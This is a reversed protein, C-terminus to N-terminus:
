LIIMEKRGQRIAMGLIVVFLIWFLFLRLKLSSAVPILTSVLLASGPIGFVMVGFLLKLPEPLTKQFLIWHYTMNLIAAVLMAAAVGTAGYGSGIWLLPVAVLAYLTSLKALWSQRDSAALTMGILNFIAMLTVYWLQFVVTSGTGRFDQGFLLVVIEYRFIIVFSAILTGIFIIGLLSRRVIVMFYAPDALTTRCLGPYLSLMLTMIMMHMPRAIKMGANFFGVEALGSRQALFLIPLQNSAATLIALWYFPLGNRVLFKFGVKFTAKKLLKARNIVQFYTLSKGAQLVAFAISTNLTTLFSKPVSWAFVVWLLSGIITLAASFEMREHGFSLSELLQWLLMSYLLVVSVTSLSLPLNHSIYTSYIILFIGVPLVFLSKLIASSYFLSRSKEPYRACERTVVHSLGIGALVVGVAANVQMVGFYGFGTPALTRAIRITAVMGLIQSLINSVTIM